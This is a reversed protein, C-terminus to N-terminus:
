MYSYVYLLADGFKHRDYNNYFQAVTPLVFIVGTLFSVITRGDVLHKEFTKYENLYEATWGTTYRNADHLQCTQDVFSHSASLCRDDEDCM